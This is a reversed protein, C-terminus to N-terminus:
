AEKNKFDKDKLFLNQLSLEHLFYQKTKNLPLTKLEFLSIKRTLLKFDM